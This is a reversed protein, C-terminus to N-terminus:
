GANNIGYGERLFQAPSTSVVQMSTGDWFFVQSASGRLDLDGTAQGTDNLGFALSYRAATLTHLDQPSGNTWLAAHTTSFNASDSEGAAQGSNNIAYAASYAHGNLPPLETIQYSQSWVSPTFACALALCVLNRQHSQM